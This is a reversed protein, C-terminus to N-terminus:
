LSVSLLGSVNRGSVFGLKVSKEIEHRILERIDDRLHCKLGYISRGNKVHLPENKM